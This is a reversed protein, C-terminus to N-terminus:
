KKELIQESSSGVADPRWLSRCHLPRNSWPEYEPSFRSVRAPALAVHGPPRSDACRRPFSVQSQIRHRYTILAYLNFNPDKGYTVLINLPESFGYPFKM